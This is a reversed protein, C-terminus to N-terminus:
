DHSTEEKGWGFKIDTLKSTTATLRDTVNKMLAILADGEGYSFSLDTETDQVRQVSTYLFEALNSVECLESIVPTLQDPLIPSVPVSTGSTNAKM